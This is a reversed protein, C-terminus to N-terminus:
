GTLSQASHPTEDESEPKAFWRAIGSAARSFWAILDTLLASAPVLKLTRGNNYAIIQGTSDSANIRAAMSAAKEPTEYDISFLRGYTM